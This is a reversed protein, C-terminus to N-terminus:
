NLLRIWYAVKHACKTRKDQSNTNRIKRHQLKRQAAEDGSVMTTWTHRINRAIRQASHKRWNRTKELTSNTQQYSRSDEIMGTFLRDM